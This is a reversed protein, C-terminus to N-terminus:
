PGPGNLHGEFINVLEQHAELKWDLQTEKVYESTRAAILEKKKRGRAAHRVAKYEFETTFARDTLRVAKAVDHDHGFSVPLVPKLRAANAEYDKM